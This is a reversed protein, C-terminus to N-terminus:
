RKAREFPQGDAKVRHFPEAVEMSTLLCYRHPRRFANGWIEQQRYARIRDMDFQALYIGESTGAEVILTDLSCEEQDFAVADFAVSHGNNQPSAYNTTAVGVM